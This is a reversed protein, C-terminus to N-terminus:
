LFRDRCIRRTTMVPIPTMAAGPLLTLSKKERRSSPREPLRGMWFRSGATTSRSFQRM